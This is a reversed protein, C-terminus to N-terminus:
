PASRRRGGLVAAVLLLGLAALWLPLGLNPGAVLLRARAGARLETLQRSATAAAEGVLRPAAWLRSGDQGISMVLPGAVATDTAVVRRNDWDPVAVALGPSLPVSLSRGQATPPQWTWPGAPTPLTAIWHVKATGASGALHPGVTADFGVGPGQVQCRLDGGAVPACRGRFPGGVAALAGHDQRYAQALPTAQSQAEASITVDIWLPDAARGDLALWAVGAVAAIAALVQSARRRADAVPGRWVQAIAVGLTVALWAHVALSRSWTAAGIAALAQLDARPLGDASPWPAREQPWQSGLLLLLAGTSLVWAAAAPHRLLLSLHGILSGGHDAAPAPM